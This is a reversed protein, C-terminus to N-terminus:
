ISFHNSCLDSNQSSWSGTLNTTDLENIWIANDGGKVAIEIHGDPSLAANANSNTAISGGLSTWGKGQIWDWLSGDSSRVLVHIKGQSDKVVYPDSTINGGLKSWSGTKNATDLDNIWLVNDGDKIAIEIHGDPSLAANAKSDTAIFGGLSTWSEGQTKDWLSGDSGRVLVHIKGQSDNVVCPDSTINGGLKSWSGTKNATDLENIWIANDGGKVAIEIHGDPSLAANANSNTAIFGGLSTWGVGQIWDWLSGDSGRVLVHIRGQSDKVVFLDSTISGGLDQWTEDVNDLLSNEKGRVFIHTRDQVDKMLFPSSSIVDIRKYIELKSEDYPFNFIKNEYNIYGIKLKKIMDLNTKKISKGTFREILSLGEYDTLAKRPIGNYTYIIPLLNGFGGERGLAREAFVDYPPNYLGPTNILVENSVFNFKIHNGCDYNYLLHGIILLTIVFSAFLYINMNKASFRPIEYICILVIIPLMWVSYRNIYMMGCNWNVSTSCMTAMMILVLWLSPIAPKKRAISAILMIISLFMLLPIYPLMGFNLDFFLSFIKDFSIDSVNAAGCSVILSLVHYNLYYFIYPIVSISACVSLLSLERIHLNAAKWGYLIIYITFFLLSPNQLSALSSALVALRYRKKLLFAVAIVVFSYSFVEPHTWRIYFIIPSLASFLFLWTKQSHTLNTIRLIIFLSFLLLLSNTIQFSMLENFNFYHLFAFVPLNFLSYTWFHYSYWAGGLSKFYGLYAADKGFNIGNKNEIQEILAIDEERLDPTLHNFISVTMGLYEHGDGIIIPSIIISSYSVLLFSFILYIIVLTNDSKNSFYGLKM